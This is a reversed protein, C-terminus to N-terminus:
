LSSCFCGVLRLCTCSARSPIKSLGAIVRARKVLVWFGAVPAKRRISRKSSTPRHRGNRNTARTPSPCSPELVRSSKPDGLPLRVVFVSVGIRDVSQRELLARPLSPRCTSEATPPARADSRPSPGPDGEPCPRVGRAVPARGEAWGPVRPM